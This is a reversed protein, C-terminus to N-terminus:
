SNNPEMYSELTTPKSIRPKPKIIGIYKRIKNWCEFSCFNLKGQSGGRLNMITISFLKRSRGKTSNDCDLHRCQEQIIYQQKKLNSLKHYTNPNNTFQNLIEWDNKQRLEKKITAISKAEQSIGSEAKLLPRTLQDFVEHYHLECLVADKCDNLDDPNYFRIITLGFNWKCKYYIKEEIDNRQEWFSKLYVCGEL